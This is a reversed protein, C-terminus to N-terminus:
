THVFGPKVGFHTSRHGVAVSIGNRDCKSLERALTVSVAKLHASTIRIMLDDNVVTKGDSVVRTAKVLVVVATRHPDIVVGRVSVGIVVAEGGSITGVSNLVADTKRTLVAVTVFRFGDHRNVM